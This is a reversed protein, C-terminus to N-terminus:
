NTTDDHLLEVDYRCTAASYTGKDIEGWGLHSRIKESLDLAFYDVTALTVPLSQQRKGRRYSNFVQQVNNLRGSPQLRGWTHYYEHLNAWSLHANAKLDNSLEGFERNIYYSGGILDTAMLFFGEDSVGDPNEIVTGLDTFLNDVNITGPEQELDACDYSIPQGHFDADNTTDMWTFIERPPRGATDFTFSNRQDVTAGQTATLDLGNAGDFYSIHEVRLNSGEIRWYVQFLQELITLLDRLTTYGITAPNTADPRKIDSKQFLMLNHLAASETYATNAPATGAPNINLFDSVVTLSCPSAMGKLVENFLRANDYQTVDQGVVYYRNDFIIGTTASYEGDYATQVKRGYTAQNTGACDDNVLIWGDGPPPDPSGAVCPTTVRESVWTVEHRYRNPEAGPGQDTIKFQKISYTNVDDLCGSINSEAFGNVPVPTSHDLTCTSESLTGFFPKADVERDFSFINAEDEWREFLCNYEDMPDPTFKMLCSDPFWKAKKLNITGTWREVGLYYAHFYISDCADAALLAAYQEYDLGYLTFETKCRRRHFVAGRERVDELVFDGTDTLISDFADLTADPPFSAYFTWDTLAM